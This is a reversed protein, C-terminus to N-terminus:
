MCTSAVIYGDDVGILVIWSDTEMPHCRPLERTNTSQQFMSTIHLFSSVMEHLTNDAYAGLLRV